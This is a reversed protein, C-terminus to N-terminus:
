NAAAPAPAAAPAAEAPKGVVKVGPRIRLLGNVVVLDDATLGSTIVRQGDYQRGLTV